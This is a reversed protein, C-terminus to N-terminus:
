AEVWYGGNSSTMAPKWRKKEQFGVVYRCSYRLYLMELFGIILKPKILVGEIKFFIINGIRSGM